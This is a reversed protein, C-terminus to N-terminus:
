RTLGAKRVIAPGFTFAVTILVLMGMGRAVKPNWQALLTLMIALFFLGVVLRVTVGKGNIWQGAVAVLGTLVVSTTTDM